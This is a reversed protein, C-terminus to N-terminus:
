TPRLLTLAGHSGLSICEEVLIDDYSSGARVGPFWASLTTGRSTIAEHLGQKGALMQRTVSDPPLRETSRFARNGTREEFVSSSWCWARTTATWRMVVLPALDLHACRIATASLSTCFLEALRVIEAADIRHRAVKKVRLAPLLLHAAFMDAEREAALNGSEFDAKSGHSPVGRDLAARHWDLFYHGLEHAFSFRARASHAEKNTDVNIYIHFASNRCELLGDFCDRYHGFSYTIGEAAAIRELNVPETASCQAVILAALEEIEEDRRVVPPAARATATATTRGSQGDALGSASPIAASSKLGPSHEARAREEDMTRRVDEPITRGNRAAMRLEADFDTSVISDRIPLGTRLLERGRELVAFPDELRKPLADFGESLASAHTPTDLDTETTFAADLIDLVRETREQRLVDSNPHKPKPM